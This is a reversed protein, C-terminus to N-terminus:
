SYIIWHRSMINSSASMYSRVFLVSDAILIHTYWTTQLFFDTAHFCNAKTHMTNILLATLHSLVSTYRESQCNNVNYSNM